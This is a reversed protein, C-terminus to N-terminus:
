RDAGGIAVGYPEITITVAVGHPVAYVIRDAGWDYAFHYQGRESWFRAVGSVTCLGMPNHFTIRMKEM